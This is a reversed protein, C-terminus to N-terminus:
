WQGRWGDECQGDYLPNFFCLFAAGAHRYDEDAKFLIEAAVGRRAFFHAFFGQVEHLGVVGFRYGFGDARLLVEFAARESAFPDVIHKLGGGSSRQGRELLALLGAAASNKLAVATHSPAISFM